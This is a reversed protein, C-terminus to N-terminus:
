ENDITDKIKNATHDPVDFVNTYSDLLGPHKEALTEVTREAIDPDDAQLNEHTKALTEHSTTASYYGPGITYESLTYEDEHQAATKQRAWAKNVEGLLEGLQERPSGESSQELRVSESSSSEATEVDTTYGELSQSDDIFEGESDFALTMEYGNEDVTEVVYRDEIPGDLHEEASVPEHEPGATVEYYHEREETVQEGDDDTYTVTRSVHLRDGEDVTGDDGLVRGASASEYSENVLEARDYRIENEIEGRSWSTGEGLVGSDESQDHFYFWKEEAHKGGFDFDPPSGDYEHSVETPNSAFPQTVLDYGNSIALAHALEHRVTSEGSDGLSLKSSKADYSETVRRKGASARGDTADLVENNQFLEVALEPHKLRDVTEKGVGTFTRFHSIDDQETPSADILRKARTEVGASQVNEVEDSTIGTYREGGPLENEFGVALRKEGVDENEVGWLVVGERPNGGDDTFEVIDGYQVGMENVDIVTNGDGGPAVTDKVGIISEDMEGTFTVEEGDFAAFPDNVNVTVGENQADIDTIEGTVQEDLWPVNVLVEDDESLNELNRPANKWEDGWGSEEFDFDEVPGDFEGETAMKVELPTEGDIDRSAYSSGQATAPAGDPNSPARKGETRRDEM